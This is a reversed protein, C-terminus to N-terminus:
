RPTVPGPHAARYADWIEARLKGRPPVDPGQGRAWSRVQAAAPGPLQVQAAPVEGPTDWDGGPCPTRGSPLTPLPPAGTTFGRRDLIRRRKHHM